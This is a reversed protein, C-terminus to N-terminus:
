AGRQAMDRRLTARDILYEGAKQPSLDCLAGTQRKGWASDYGTFLV